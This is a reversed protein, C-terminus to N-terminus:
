KDVAKGHVELLPSLLPLIMRNHVQLVSVRYVIYSLSVGGAANMYYHVAHAHYFTYILGIPLYM